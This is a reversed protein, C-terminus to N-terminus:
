PGSSRHPGQAVTLATMHVIADVSANQQLVSVPKKMGLLVPGVVDAGGTVALLKYAANGADLNPFILVNANLKLASFPYAARDAQSLAVNAQMEGDIILDPRRAKVLRTAQAVKKSEAHPADGFNSFSLMAVRPQIGFDHVKEAVLLAIESLTEADPQINITTDALFYVGQKSIVMYMGCAIKVDDRVGIIRLAPRITAPYDQQAGAVVGDVDGMELMMMAFATRSRSLETLAGTGTVGKRCRRLFYQDAYTTLTTSRRPEVLTIGDLGVGLAAAREQIKEPIGLLTPTAIGADSVRRAARIIGDHDGEPYVIRGPKARAASLVNWLVRRAPSLKQYLQDRYADIDIHDRAMGSEIAAKAVAPAVRHLVRSDFPKPIIYEPGFKLDQRGYARLVDDPVDERALEALADAAAVKMEESIERARVDLAGRFIYPFGLVNNVQNPFDSRGTAVIADPRAEVATAYDIEPDPNALAFIIPRPALSSVMEPSVLGGASLGILVDAGAIVDAMTQRTDTEPRAFMRRFEDLDPRRVHIVGDHDYMTINEVAVGMRVWMHMCSIAAAGAGICTVKIDALRKQQLECANKLAAASIIATGHQDDHFVPISMRKRLEREIVFCEPAKIDELNIGGFTPELSSVIDIFRQPDKADVELDFVDIDAFRKFLVAKGEMVPKAARPGIDGLGLVATGNTVVAVLNRRATYTDVLDPNDRIARCPEAVGPSYALSLDLQTAVPKTWVVEIKGPRGEAHYRLADDRSQM